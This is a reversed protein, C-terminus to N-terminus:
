NDADPFYDTIRENPVARNSVWLLTDHIARLVRDHDSGQNIDAFEDRVDGALRTMEVITRHDKM